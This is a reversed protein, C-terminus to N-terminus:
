ELLGRRMGEAVAAARESVGLKEYISHLHSKVTSPEVYLRTAIEPASLGRAVQTLVEQERSTLKRDREDGRVRIEHLVDSEITRSIVTEGRSVAVIADCVEKASAGKDLYGAAGDALLDYVMGSETHRSLFLIRTAIGDGVVGKLVDGGDLRPMRIDLVAVQPQLRRIEELAAGGDAATGVLELDTRGMIAEELAGRILPHDDAILVQIAGVSM